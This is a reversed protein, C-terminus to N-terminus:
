NLRETVDQDGECPVTHSLPFWGCLGTAESSGYVWRDQHGGQCHGGEPDHAVIVFDGEGLALEGQGQSEFAQKVLRLPAGEGAQSAALLGGGGQGGQGQQPEAGCAGGDAGGDGGAPAYAASPARGDPLPGPGTPRGAAGLAPQAETFPSVIVVLSRVQNSRGM